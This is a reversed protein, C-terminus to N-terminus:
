GGYGSKGDELINKLMQRGRYLRSRVTGEAIKLIDGIEVTSFEEYYYLLIVDKYQEPLSMVKELINEGEIKNIIKMEMNEETASIEEEREGIFSMKRMWASKLIDKCTNVTITMLWSKEKEIYELKDINKYVKIFVEQFADEAMSKDKLYMYAVRLVDNGYDDILQEVKDHMNCLYGFPYKGGGRYIFRFVNCNRKM